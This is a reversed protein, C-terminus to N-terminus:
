FIAEVAEIPDPTNVSEHPAQIRITVCTDEGIENLVGYSLGDFRDYLIMDSYKTNHEEIYRFNDQPWGM